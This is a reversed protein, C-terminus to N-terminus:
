KNPKTPRTETSKRKTMKEGNQIGERTFLAAGSRNIDVKRLVESVVGVSVTQGEAM